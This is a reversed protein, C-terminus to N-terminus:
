EVYDVNKKNSIFNAIVAIYSHQATRNEGFFISKLNKRLQEKEKEWQQNLQILINQEELNFSALSASKLLIIATCLDQFKGLEDLLSKLFSDDTSNFSTSPIMDSLNLKEIALYYFIDKLYKRVSHFDYDNLEGRLLIDYVMLLKQTVFQLCNSKSIKKPFVKNIKKQNVKVATHFSKISLGYKFKFFDNEILNIYGQPKVQQLEVATTVRHHLLQLDRLHGLVKYWGKLKKSMKVKKDVSLNISGLRLFTRFKKYEVRFQHIADEQLNLSVMSAYQDVNKFHRKKIHCIKNQNM